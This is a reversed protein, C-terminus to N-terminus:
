DHRIKVEKDILVGCVTNISGVTVTEYSQKISM